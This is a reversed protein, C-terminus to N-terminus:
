GVDMDISGKFLAGDAILIRPSRVDGVMKGDAKIEVRASADINGTLVGSVEVSDAEVDAEVNASNEVYMSESTAVKGRITGQVVLAEDSNLEGEIVLTSGIVTNAM